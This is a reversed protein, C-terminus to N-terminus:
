HQFNKILSNARVLKPRSSRHGLNVVKPTGHAGGLWVAGGICLSLLPKPNAAGRKEGYTYGMGWRRRTIRRAGFFAILTTIVGTHSGFTPSSVYSLDYDM